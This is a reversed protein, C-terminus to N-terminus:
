LCVYPTHQMQQTTSRDKKKENRKMEKKIWLKSIKMTFRDLFYIAVFIQDFLVTSKLRFYSLSFIFQFPILYVYLSVSVSFSLLERNITYDFINMSYATGASAIELNLYVATQVCVNFCWICICICMRVLSLFPFHNRFFNFLLLNQISFWWRERQFPLALYLSPSLSDTVFKLRSSFYSKRHLNTKNKQHHTM